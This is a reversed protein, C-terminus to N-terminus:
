LDERVWSFFNSYNHRGEKKYEKKAEELKCDLAEDDLALAKAADVAAGDQSPAKAADSPDPSVPMNAVNRKRKFNSIDSKDRGGTRPNPVQASDITAVM